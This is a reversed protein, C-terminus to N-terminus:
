DNALFLRFRNWVHWHGMRTNFSQDDGNPPFRQILQQEPILRIQLPLEIGKLLIMMVIPDLLTQILFSRLFYPSPGVAMPLDLANSTGTTNDPIREPM